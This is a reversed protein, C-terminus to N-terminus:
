KAKWLAISVDTDDLKEMSLYLYGICLFYFMHGDDWLLPEFSIVDLRYEARKSEHKIFHDEIISDCM